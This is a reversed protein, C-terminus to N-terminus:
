NESPSLVMFKKELPNFNEFLMEFLGEGYESYLQSFNIEREQFNGNPFLQNKLKQVAVVVTESKRKQARMAKENITKLGNLVKQKEGEVSAMLSVDISSIKEKLNDYMKEIDTAEQDLNFDNQKSIVKKIIDDVSSFIDSADIGLKEMSKQNQQSLIMAHNRLILTPFPVQYFDFMRKFELWYSIEGPGGIYAINPLIYEQYLPRLVVNPSFKEPHNELENEIEARTFRLNTEHVHFHNEERVIRHRQNKSDIFFLNIERPNAQINYGHNKLEEVSENVKAFASANLLDDKMVPSFIKKLNKDDGNVVLLGKDSFLQLVLQVTADLLSEQQYVKEFLSIIKETNSNQPLLLKLEEVMSQIGNTSLKGTAGLPPNQWSIKKGFVNVSCIEDVDHDEGAPWYVPIFDCDTFNQKLMKALNICSVIKYIFYLPGTMVNLQHGTTVTFTKESSLKSILNEAKNVDIGKAQYSHYQNSAVESLENRFRFNSKAELMKRFDGITNIPNFFNSLTPQDNLFDIVLQNSLGTKEFEFFHKKCIM